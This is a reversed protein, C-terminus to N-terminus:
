QAKSKSSMRKQCTISERELNRILKRIEEERVQEGAQMKKQITRDYECEAPQLHKQNKKKPSVITREKGNAVYCINRETGVVIYYEGRDHGAASRVLTGIMEKETM